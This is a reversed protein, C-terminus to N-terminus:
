ANGGTFGLVLPGHRKSSRAPLTALTHRSFYQNFQNLGLNGGESLQAFRVRIGNNKRLCRKGQIVKSQKPQCDFIGPEQAFGYGYNRMGFNANARGSVVPGGVFFRLSSVARRLYLMIRM